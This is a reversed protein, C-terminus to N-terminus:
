GTQLHNQAIQNHCGACIGADVYNNGPPAAQAAALAVPCLWIVMRALGANNSYRHHHPAAVVSTYVFSSLLRRGAAGNGRCVLSCFALGTADHARSLFADASTTVNVGRRRM